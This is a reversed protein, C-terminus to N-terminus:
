KEGGKHFGRLEIQTVVATPFVWQLLPDISWKIGKDSSLTHNRIM